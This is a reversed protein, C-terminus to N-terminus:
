TVLTSRDTVELVRMSVHGTTRLRERTIADHVAEPLFDIDAHTKLTQIVRERADDDLPQLQDHRLLDLALALRGALDAARRRYHIADRHPDRQRTM